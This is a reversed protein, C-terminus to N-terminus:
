GATAGKEPTIIVNLHAFVINCCAPPPPLSPLLLLSTMSPPRNITVDWVHQWGNPLVPWSRASNIPQMSIRHEGLDKMPPCFPKLYYFLFSTLPSFLHISLLSLFPLQRTLSLSSYLSLNTKMGALRRSHLDRLLPTPSLLLNITM